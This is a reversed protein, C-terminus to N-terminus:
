PVILIFYDSHFVNIKNSVTCFICTNSRRAPEANLFGRDETSGGDDCMGIVKGIPVKLILLQVTNCLMDNFYKSIKM